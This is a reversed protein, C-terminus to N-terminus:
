LAYPLIKETGGSRQEITDITNFQIGLFVPTTTSAQTSATRTISRLVYQRLHM